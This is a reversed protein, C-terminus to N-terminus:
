SADSGKQFPRLLSKKTNILVTKTKTLDFERTGMLGQPRFLMVVILITSYLLYRYDNFDRLIEPLFVLVIASVISGSISGMGGLVVIVFIEISKLFNFSTPALFGDKFAFMAGGMGGFMSALIFAILKYRTINIGVSESAIEDERISLIARGHRSNM